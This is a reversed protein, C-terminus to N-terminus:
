KIQIPITKKWVVSDIHPITLQLYLESKSEDFTADLSQQYIRSENLKKSFFRRELLPMWKIKRHLEIRKGSPKRIIFDKYIVSENLHQEDYPSYHATAEGLALAGITSAIYNPLLVVVLGIIGLTKQIKINRFALWWFLSCIFFLPTMGLWADVVTSTTSLGGLRVVWVLVSFIALIALITKGTKAKRRFLFMLIGSLIPYTWCASLLALWFTNMISPNSRIFVSLTRGFSFRKGLGLLVRVEM